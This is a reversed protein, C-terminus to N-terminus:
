MSIDKAQEQLGRTEGCRLRLDRINQSNRLKKSCRKKQIWFPIAM